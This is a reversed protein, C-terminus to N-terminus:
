KQGEGVLVIMVKAVPTLVKITMGIWFTLESGMSPSFAISNLDLKLDLFPQKFLNQAM